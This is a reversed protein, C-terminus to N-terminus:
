AGDPNRSFRAVTKEAQVSTAVTYSETLAERHSNFLAGTLGNEVM